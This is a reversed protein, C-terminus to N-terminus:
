AREVLRARDRTFTKPVIGIFKQGQRKFEPVHKTGEPLIFYRDCLFFFEARAGIMRDVAIGMSFKFNLVFRSTKVM